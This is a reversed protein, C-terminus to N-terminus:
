KKRKELEARALKDQSNLKLAKQFYEEAEAPKGLADYTKGIYVLCTSRGWRPELPGAPKGAEAEFLKEAELLMKLGENKGGLLAPGHYRNMGALYLVRPNDPGLKRSRDDQDLFRPGLWLARAPNAAISLGYTTSLLARREGCGEDAKVARLLAEATGDLALAILKRNAPSQPEGLLFLLRHFEAVGRWYLNTSSKGAEAFMKAAKEFRAGDWAQYAATFETVGALTLNTSDAAWVPLALALALFITMKGIMEQRVYV